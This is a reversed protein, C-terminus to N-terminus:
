SGLFFVTDADPRPAHVTIPLGYDTFRSSHATPWRCRSLARFSIDTKLFSSHCVALGTVVRYRIHHDVIANHEAIGPIALEAPDKLQKPELPRVVPEVRFAPRLLIVRYAEGNGLLEDSKTLFRSIATPFRRGLKTIVRNALNRAHL